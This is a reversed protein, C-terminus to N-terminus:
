THTLIAHTCQSHSHHTHTGYTHTCHSCPHHTHVMLSPPTHVTLSPPTHVTLSPPTHTSHTLTTHTCQSHPHHTQECWPFEAGEHSSVKGVFMKMSSVMAELQEVGGVPEAGMSGSAQGSSSYQSLLQDLQSPTVELWSDDTNPLAPLLATFSWGCALLAASIAKLSALLAATIPTLCCMVEQFASVMQLNLLM